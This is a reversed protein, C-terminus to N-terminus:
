NRRRPTKRRELEAQMTARLEEWEAAYGALLEDVEAYVEATPEQLFGKGPRYLRNRIAPEREAEWKARMYANVRERLDESVLALLAFAGDEIYWVPVATETRDQSGAERALRAHAAGENARQVAEVVSAASSRAKKESQILSFAQYFEEESFPLAEDIYTTQM